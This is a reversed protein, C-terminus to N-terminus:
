GSSETSTSTAPPLSSGVPRTAWANGPAKTRRRPSDPKPAAALSAMPMTSPALKKRKQWSSTTGRRLATVIITSSDNRDLAPMTVGLNTRQSSERTRSCTPMLASLVPAM